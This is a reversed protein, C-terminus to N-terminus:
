NYWNYLHNVNEVQYNKGKREWSIIVKIELFDESGDNLETVEIEREFKNFGVIPESPTIDGIGQDWERGNLLNNDRINKINEIEAQSLYYATLKSENLSTGAITQQLLSFSAFVTMTVIFLSFVSELLTIGKQKNLNTRIKENM